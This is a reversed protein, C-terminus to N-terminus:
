KRKKKLEKFQVMQRRQEKFKAIRKAELEEEKLKRQWEEEKWLRELTKKFNELHFSRLVEWKSEKAKSEKEIQQIGRKKVWKM